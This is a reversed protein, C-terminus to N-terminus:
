KVETFVIRGDKWIKREYDKRNCGNPVTLVVTGGITRAKYKYEKM